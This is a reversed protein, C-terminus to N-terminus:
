TLPDESPWTGTWLPPRARQRRHFYRRVISGAVVSTAIAAVIWTWPTSDDRGRLGTAKAASALSSGTSVERAAAATTDVTPPSTPVVVVPAPATPPPPLPPIAAAVVPQATTTTIPPEPRRSRRPKTTTTTTPTTTTTSDMTTTSTSGDYCDHDRCYDERDGGGPGHPDEDHASATGTIGALLLLITGLVTALARRRNSSMTVNGTNTARRNPGLPRVVVHAARFARILSFLLL